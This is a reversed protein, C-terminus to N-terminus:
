KYISSFSSAPLGENNFLDGIVWDKFAYRVNVPSLIENCCAIVTNDKIIATAPKFIGDAGAVEFLKLTDGNSKLGNEAYKFFVTIRNDNISMSDFIPGCFANDLLGYSKNMAWYSLRKGIIEKFRPHINNEDGVDTTIVIGSNSILEMCDVMVQRMIASKGDIGYDYPTIQVFYFPLTGMGWRNRWENVMTPLLQKYRDPEDVNSEGQYWLFGKIGYGMIASLMGNYYKANFCQWPGNVGSMWSQVYTGGCGCKIIAVPVNIKDQLSKAFYYGVASFNGTTQPSAIQWGSNPCDFSPEDAPNCFLSYSRINNNLSNAIANDAGEVIVPPTGFPIGCMPVTINSQGSCVWVEGVLVNKIIRQNKNFNITYPGGAIPTSMKIEWKGNSGPKTRYISDTWSPQIFIDKDNESKGWITILTRQQIVMNDSFIEPLTITDLITRQMIEFHFVVTNSILGDDDVSKVYLNKEGANDPFWVQKLIPMKTTDYNLSDFSWLYANVIGDSDSSNVTFTVTDNAAYLKDCSILELIPPKKYVDVQITDPESSYKKGDTASVIIAFKGVKKFAIKLITDQITDYIALEKIDWIFKIGTSIPIM